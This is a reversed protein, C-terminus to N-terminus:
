LIAAYLEDVTSVIVEAGYDMLEERDRFGWGVSVCSIKTNQATQIDVESDGIYVANKKDINLQKLVANVSDPAPKRRVTAQEGVAVDFLGNFYKECLKQVASDAKNSVVATMFGQEKLKCLLCLIGDYPKTKDASHIKYYDLFEQYINEIQKTDTENPVGQEVLRLIGNGVFSRVDAKTRVPLNYKQLCHNMTDTLDDLTDLITGDMDFIALKYRM